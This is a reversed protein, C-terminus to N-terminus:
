FIMPVEVFLIDSTRQAIINISRTEWIGIADRKGLINNDIKIDGEINMIYVGHNNSKLKYELAENKHLTIRSIQADQQIKLSKDDKSNESSVLIQLKNNRETEKFYKQEYKPTINQESPVIWLQFFNVKELENDNFESHTLGSGASMVQVEGATIAKKNGMSDKHSLAGLLPISIIEMNKHPHTGFGEKAEVIDDNFVRLAGFNMRDSNYYGAFSFSHYSELWGHNVYGRSDARHLITKM